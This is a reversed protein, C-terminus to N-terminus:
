LKSITDRIKEAATKLQTLETTDLEVQMIKEVGNRSLEVPLGIFIDNLGYENQALCSCPLVRHRDNLISDAMETISLGPAYYASGTKLFSVVEAGGNRTREVLSSLKEPAILNKLPQEQVTAGSIVPVMEDGHSGLVLAQVDDPEVDLERAVFLRFRSADLVGAMGIIHKADVGSAKWAAYCMADLPNTVVIFIANPSLAASRTAAERVIGANITMLDDRTMGPKRAVGATIVILDSGETDAYDTTGTIRFDKRALASCQSMDLALGQPKGEVVDFLVIDGLGKQAMFLAATAGVNGAGIVSIKNKQM